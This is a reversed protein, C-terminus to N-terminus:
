NDLTSIIKRDIAIVQQLEQDSLTCTLEEFLSRRIKELRQMVKTGSSSLRLYQMRRDDPDQERTVFGRESLTDIFQAVAGRTVHMEKAIESSTIPQRRDLLSLIGMLAPSLDEVDAAEFFKAKWLRILSQNVHIYQDLLENRDM